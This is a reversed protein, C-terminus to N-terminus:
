CFSRSLFPYWNEDKKSSFPHFLCSFRLGTTTSPIGRVEFFAQSTTTSPIGRVEQGHNSGSSRVITRDEPDFWTQCFFIKKFPCLLFHKANKSTFAVVVPKCKKNHGKLFIKSTFAVVVPKCKKNHGKL